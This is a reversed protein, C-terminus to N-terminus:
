PHAGVLANQNKMRAEAENLLTASDPKASKNISIKKPRLEEPIIKELRIVLLGDTLTAEVVEMYDELHWIRRFSRSAIGRHPYHRKQKEEKTGEVTITNDKYEVNLEEEKFGAVAIELEFKSDNHRIINYPPYASTQINEEAIRNLRLFLNDFGVTRSFIPDFDFPTGLTMTINEKILRTQNQTILELYDM